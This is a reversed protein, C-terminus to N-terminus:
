SFASNGITKLNNSFNLESIKSSEFAFEGIETVNEFNYTQLSCNEFLRDPIVSINEFGTVQSLNQCWEFVGEGM